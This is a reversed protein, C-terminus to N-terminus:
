EIRPTRSNGSGRCGDWSPGYSGWECALGDEIQISKYNAAYRLVKFGPYEAAFKEKDALIAQKAVDPPSGPMFRLADESWIDM